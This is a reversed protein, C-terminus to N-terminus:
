SVSNFMEKGRQLGAAIINRDKNFVPCDIAVNTGVVTMQAPESSQNYLWDALSNNKRWGGRVTILRLDFNDKDPDAMFDGANVSFEAPICGTLRHMIYLRAILETKIRYHPSDPRDIEASSMTNELLPTYFRSNFLDAKEGVANMAFFSYTRDEAGAFVYRLELHEPLYEFSFGSVGKYGGLVYSQPVFVPLHKERLLRRLGRLNKFETELEDKLKPSGKSMVLVFSYPDVDVKYIANKKGLQILTASYDSISGQYDPDIMTMTSDVFRRGLIRAAVTESEGYTMKTGYTHFDWSQEFTSPQFHITTGDLNKHEAM